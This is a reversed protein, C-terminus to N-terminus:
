HEDLRERRAAHYPAQYRASRVRQPRALDRDARPGAGAGAGGALAGSSGEGTGRLRRSLTFLLLHSRGQCVGQLLRQCQEVQPATALYLTAEVVAYVGEPLGTVKDVADHRRKPWDVAKWM